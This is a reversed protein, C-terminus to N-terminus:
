WTESKSARWAVLAVVIAALVCLAALALIDTPTM